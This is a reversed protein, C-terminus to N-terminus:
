HQNREPTIFIRDISEKIAQQYVKSVDNLYSSTKVLGDKVSPNIEEMLPLLNLRIKTVRTNM